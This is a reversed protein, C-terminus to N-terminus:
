FLAKSGNLRRMRKISCKPITIGDGVNRNKNDLSQVITIAEDDEKILIGASVCRSMKHEMAVCKDM